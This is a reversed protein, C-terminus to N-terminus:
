KGEQDSTIRPPKRKWKTDFEYVNPKKANTRQWVVRIFGAEKLIKIYYSVESPTKFGYAKYQEHPFVFLKRDTNYVERNLDFENIDKGLATYYEKLTNYLCEKQIEVSSHVICATLVNKAKPPLAKYPESKLMDAYIIGFKSYPNDYYAWRPATKQKSM